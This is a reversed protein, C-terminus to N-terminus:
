RRYSLVKRNEQKVPLVYRGNRMTIIAEQLYKLKQPSHLYSNLRDRVKDNSRSIQRRINALEPSAHDYLTEESEICRRIRDLLIRQTQLTEIMAPIVKLEAKAKHENMRTKVSSVLSLVQAIQLLEKPSLVSGIEAKRM